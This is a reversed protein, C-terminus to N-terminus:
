KKGVKKEDALLPKDPPVGLLSLSGKMIEAFAPAAVVGGFYGNAKPSEFNVAVILRPNSVPAFGVFLSRYDKGYSKGVLKHATGSKAAVTYGDIAGATGTGGTETVTQMIKRMQQATKADIVGEGQPTEDQKLISVPLIKGDNTFITYGRALQLLSMQLNYGYGMNAQNLPKWQKWHHIKGATEGPLGSKPKENFGLQSLYLYMDEPSMMRAIKSAGVNSSKQIIGTTTLQPYAHSDTIKHGGIEYPNTNFVTNQSIKGIDMAKAVIFPKITSGPEIADMLAANRRAETSYKTFNEPDFTPYNAIALIEGTKADLVVASASSANHYELGRKLANVAINQINKDLSLYLDEGHIPNTNNASEVVGFYDHKNDRIMTQKGDRGSLTKNFSYELGELGVIKEPDESKDIKTVGVVQGFNNGNPYRRQTTRVISLGAVKHEEIQNLLEKEVNRLLYVNSNMPYNQKNFKKLAETETLNVFPALAKVDEWYKAEKKRIQELQKQKKESKIKSNSLESKQTEFDPLQWTDIIVNGREENIALIVGNRDFIKGRNASEKVTHFFTKQIENELTIKNKSVNFQVTRVVLILLLTILGVLIINLRSTSITYSDKTVKNTKVRPKYRNDILM